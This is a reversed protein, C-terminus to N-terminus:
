CCLMERIDLIANAMQRISETDDTYVEFGSIRAKIKALKEIVALATVFHERQKILEKKLADSCEDIIEDSEKIADQFYIIAEKANDMNEEKTDKLKEAAWVSNYCDVCVNLKNGNLKNQMVAVARKKGCLDCLIRGCKCKKM